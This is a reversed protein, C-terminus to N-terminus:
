TRRKKGAKHRAKKGSHRPPPATPERRSPKANAAKPKSGKGRLAEYARVVGDPVRAIQNRLALTAFAADTLSDAAQAARVRLLEAENLKVRAHFWAIGPLQPRSM